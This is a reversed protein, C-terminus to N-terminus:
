EKKVSVQGQEENDSVVEITFKKIGFNATLDAKGKIEVTITPTTEDNSWKDFQYCDDKSEATITLKTGYQYEGGTFPNGGMLIRGHEGGSVTIEYINKEGNYQATYTAAGTVPPLPSYGWGTFTYSQEEDAARTPEPGKYEPTTGYDWDAHELEAGDWNVFTITFKKPVKKFHATYNASSKVITELTPEWYDFEYTYGQDEAKTAEPATLTQGHEYTQEKFVTGDEYKYKITYKNIAFYAKYTANGSVSVVRSQETNNDNWHDFHYGEKPSATITVTEGCGATVETQPQDVAMAAISCCLAVTLISFQKM